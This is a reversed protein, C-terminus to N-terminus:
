CLRGTFQGKENIKDFNNIEDDFRIILISPLQRLLM